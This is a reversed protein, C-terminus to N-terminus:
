CFLIIENINYLIVFNTRGFKFIKGLNEVFIFKPPASAGRCGWSRWGWSRCCQRPTKRLFRFCQPEIKYNTSHVATVLFLKSESLSLLSLRKVISVNREMTKWKKLECVRYEATREQYDSAKNRLRWSPQKCWFPILLPYLYQTKSTSCKFATFSTHRYGSALYYCICFM